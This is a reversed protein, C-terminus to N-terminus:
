GFHGGNHNSLVNIISRGSMEVMCDNLLVRTLASYNPSLFREPLTIARNQDPRVSIPGQALDTCTRGSIRWTRLPGRRGQIDGRRRVELSFGAQTRRIVRVIGVMPTTEGEDFVTAVMAVVVASWVVHVPGPLLNGRCHRVAFM